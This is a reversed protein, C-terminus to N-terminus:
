HSLGHQEFDKHLAEEEFGLACLPWVSHKLIQTELQSMEEGVDWSRM